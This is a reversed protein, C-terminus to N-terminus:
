RCPRGNTDSVYVFRGPWKAQLAERKAEAEEATYAYHSCVDTTPGVGLEVFVGFM